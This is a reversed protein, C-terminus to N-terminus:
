GSDSEMEEEEVDEDHTTPPQAMRIRTLESERERLLLEERELAPARGEHGGTM